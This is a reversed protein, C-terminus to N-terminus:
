KCVQNRGKNKAKYLAKDAAKMVEDPTTHNECRESVGISVTVKVQKNRTKAPKKSGKKPPKKPRDQGRITFPSEEICQRVVELHAFVESVSKGPFIVSFEEGGYRAAYGGGSVQGIKSAVMRLVQDGIDHGHTDNFKKFHDIDLMAITYRNGLSMLTATMARRGPLGTLEDIYAMGYSEQVLTIVLLVAALGFLVASDNTNASQSIALMAIMLTALVSSEVFCPRILLRVVQWSVVLACVLWASQSIGQQIDVLWAFGLWNTELWNMWSLNSERILWWVVGAQVVLLAFRVAGHITFIGREKFFSLILLNLPLLLSVALILWRSSIEGVESRLNFGVYLGLILLLSFFVRSRNFRWALLAGTTIAIYPFLDILPQYSTPLRQVSPLLYISFLPLLFPVFLFVLRKLM